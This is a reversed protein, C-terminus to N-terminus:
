TDAEDEDEMLRMDELLPIEPGVDIVEDGELLQPAAATVTRPLVIMQEITLTAPKQQEQKAGKEGTIEAELQTVGLLIGMADTMAKYQRKPDQKALEYTEEAMETLKRIKPAVTREAAKQVEAGFAKKRMGTGLSEAFEPLKRYKYVSFASIPFGKEKWFASISESSQESDVLQEVFTRRHEEPLRYYFADRRIPM